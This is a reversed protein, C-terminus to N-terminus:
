IIINLQTDNDRETTSVKKIQITQGEYSVIGLFSSGVELISINNDIIATYLTNNLKILTGQPTNKVITILSVQKQM